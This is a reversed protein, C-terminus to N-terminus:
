HKMLLAGQHVFTLVQCQRKHKNVNWNLCEVQEMLGNGCPLDLQIKDRTKIQMTEQSTVM